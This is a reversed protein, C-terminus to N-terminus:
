LVMVLLNGKRKKSHLPQTTELIEELRGMLKMTATTERLDNCETVKSLYASLMMKIYKHGWYLSAM